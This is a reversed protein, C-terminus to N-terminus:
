KSYFMAIVIFIVIHEIIIYMPDFQTNSTNPATKRMAATDHTCRVYM